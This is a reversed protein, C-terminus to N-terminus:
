DFKVVVTQTVTDIEVVRNGPTVAGSDRVFGATASGVVSNGRVPVIGSYKWQFNGKHYIAGVTVGETIRNEYSALAGLIVLGDGSVKATKDATLDQVMACGIAPSVGATGSLLWTYSFDESRLGKLTVGSGIIGSM